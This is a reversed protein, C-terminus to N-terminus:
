YRADCLARTPLYAMDASRMAYPSVRESRLVRWRTHTRRTAGYTPDYASVACSSWICVSRFSNRKSRTYPPDHLANSKPMVQSQVPTSQGPVRRLRQSHHGSPSAPLKRTARYVEDSRPGALPTPLGYYWVGLRQSRPICSCPM